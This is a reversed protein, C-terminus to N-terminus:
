KLTLFSSVNGKTPCMIVFLLRTRNQRFSTLKTHVRKRVDFDMDIRLIIKINKVKIRRCINM